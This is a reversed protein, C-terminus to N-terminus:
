DPILGLYVRGSEPGQTTPAQGTELNALAAAYGFGADVGVVTGQTGDDGAALVTWFRRSRFSSGVALWAPDGGVYGPVPDGNITLESRNLISAMARSGLYVTGSPSAAIDGLRMANAKGKSNRPMVLQSQVLSGSGPDVRAFYTIHAAGSNHLRTHDDTRTVFPATQGQQEEATMPQGRWRFITATGASEGAIYLYGDPEQSVRLLRTDAVNQQITEARDGFLTWDQEGSFDFAALKAIQVPQRQGGLDTFTSNRFSTVYVRDGGCASVEIDTVQTADLTKSFLRTGSPDHLTVTKGVLVAIQGASSIAVRSAQEYPLTALTEGSSADIRLVTNELAIALQDLASSYAIDQIKGALSVPNFVSGTAPDISYLRGGNQTNVAAIAGAPTLVVDVGSDGELYLGVTLDLNKSYTVAQNTAAMATPCGAVSASAVLRELRPALGASVSPSLANLYFLLIEISLALM